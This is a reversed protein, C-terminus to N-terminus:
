FCNIEVWKIDSAHLTIEFPLLQDARQCNRQTDAVSPRFLLYLSLMLLIALFYAAFLCSESWLRINFQIWTSIDRFNGLILRLSVFSSKAARFSANGFCMTTLLAKSTSNFMGYRFFPRLVAESNKATCRSFVKNLMSSFSCSTANVIHNFLCNISIAIWSLWCIHTVISNFEHKLKNYVFKM